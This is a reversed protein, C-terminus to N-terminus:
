FVSSSMKVELKVKHELNTREKKRPGNKNM